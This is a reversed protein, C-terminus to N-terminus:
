YTKDNNIGEFYKTVAAKRDLGLSTLCFNLLVIDDCDEGRCFNCSKVYAGYEDTKDYDVVYGDKEACEDSCWRHFCDDNCRVYDGCDPFAEGCVSCPILDVGM